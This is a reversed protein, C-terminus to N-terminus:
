AAGLRRRSGRARSAPTGRARARRGRRPAGGHRRWRPPAAAARRRPASAPRAADAGAGDDGVDGAVFQRRLAGGGRRGDGRQAPPAAPRDRRRDVAPRRHHRDVDFLDARCSTAPPRTAPSPTPEDTAATSRSPRRALLEADRLADTLGHASLPDKCYGADGVLAWGPGWSRRIYGPQGRFTRLAPPAEAAALRDALEPSSSPSSARAARRARRARHARAHRQRLRLGPRRQDPDRRGRRRPPLDVRLRRDRARVLLRLHRRQRRHGRARRPADVRRAITSRIGDAGVVLGAGAHRRHPRRGDRGVVGTM